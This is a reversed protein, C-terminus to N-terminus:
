AFPLKIKIVRIELFYRNQFDVSLGQNKKKEKQEAGLAITSFGQSTPMVLWQFHIM